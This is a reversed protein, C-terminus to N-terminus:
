KERLQHGASRSGGIRAASRSPKMRREIRCDDMFQLLLKANALEDSANKRMAAEGIWVVGSVKQM